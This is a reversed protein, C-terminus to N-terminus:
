IVLYFLYFDEKREEEIEGNPDRVRGRSGNETLKHSVCINKSRTAVCGRVAIKEDRQVGFNRVIDSTNPNPSRNLAPKRPLKMQVTM